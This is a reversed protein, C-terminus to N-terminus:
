VVFVVAVVICSYHVVEGVASLVVVVVICGICPSDVEGAIGVVVGVADIGGLVSRLAVCVVAGCYIEVYVVWVVAGLVAVGSMVFDMIGM